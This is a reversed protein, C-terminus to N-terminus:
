VEFIRDLERQTVEEEFRVPDRRELEVRRRKPITGHRENVRATDHGITEHKAHRVSIWERLGDVDALRKRGRLFAMQDHERNGRELAVTRVDRRGRARRAIARRRCAEAFRRRENAILGGTAVLAGDLEAAL